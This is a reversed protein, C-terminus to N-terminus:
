ACGFQACRYLSPLTLSASVLSLYSIICVHEEMAQRLRDIEDARDPHRALYEPTLFAQRFSNVGGGAPADVAGNLTMSLANTSVVQATQAVASYRVYLSSLERTKQEVEDLAHETPSIEQAVVKEVDARRLVTPFSAETYFITKEVWAEEEGDRTTKTITRSSSFMKIESRYLHTM